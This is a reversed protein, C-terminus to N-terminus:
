EGTPENKQLNGRFWTSNINNNYWDDHELVEHICQLKVELYTTYTKSYTWELIQKTIQNGAAIDQLLAESSSNYTLWDSEKQVMKWKKLRKNPLDAIERKTLAKKRSSYLLKKGIYKKGNEMNIILYCFGVAGKPVDEISRVIQENYIWM